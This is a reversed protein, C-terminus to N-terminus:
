FMDTSSLNITSDKMRTSITKEILQATDNPWSRKTSMNETPLQCKNSNLSFNNSQLVAVAAVENLTVGVLDDL